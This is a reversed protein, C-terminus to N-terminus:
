IPLWGDGVAEGMVYDREGESSVREILSVWVSPIKSFIETYDGKYMSGWFRLEYSHRWRCVTLLM